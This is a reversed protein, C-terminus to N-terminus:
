LEGYIRPVRESIGTVVEYSSKGSWNAVDEVTIQQEGQQGIFVVEENILNPKNTAVETLDVMAYDMCVLGIMPVLHGSVLVKGKNSLSRSVGDAYGAPVVGIVSDKAARWTGDYSVIDGSKVKHSAVIKSRFEMVPSVLPKLSLDDGPDIGYVLLGPRMGYDFPRRNKYLSAIASSNYMHKILKLDNFSSEVKKFEEIQKQSSSEPVLINDGSHLHSCIGEIQINPNQFLCDMIQATDGSAFGLRNMGTNFKLHIDTPEKVLDILWEMQNFNSVVPTICESLLEAVADKGHFGFALINASIHHDRLAKGEEVSAVGFFQCREKELAKAVAIDGHGYANAKIMPCLFRQGPNLTQLKRFNSMLQDLHIRLFTPRLLSM